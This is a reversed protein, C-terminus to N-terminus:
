RAPTQHHHFADDEDLNVVIRNQYRFDPNGQHSSERADDLTLVFRRLEDVTM